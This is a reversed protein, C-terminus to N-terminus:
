EARGYSCCAFHACRVQFFGLGGLPSVHGIWLVNVCYLRVLGLRDCVCCRAGALIHRTLSAKTNPVDQGNVTQKGGSMAELVHYFAGKGKDSNNPSVPPAANPAQGNTTSPATQQGAQPQGAQPQPPQPAPLPMQSMQSARTDPATDAVSQTQPPQVAAINQPDSM